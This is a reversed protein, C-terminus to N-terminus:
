AAVQKKAKRKLWDEHRQEKTRRLSSVLNRLNRDDINLHKCTKSIDRGLANLVYKAYRRAVRKRSKTTPHLLDISRLDIAQYIEWLEPDDMWTCGLRTIIQDALDFTTTAWRGDFMKGLYGNDKRGWVLVSIARLETEDNDELWKKMLRVLPPTPVRKM